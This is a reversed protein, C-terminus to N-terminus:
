GKYDFVQEPYADRPGLYEVLELHYSCKPCNIVPYEASRIGGIQSVKILSVKQMQSAFQVSFERRCGPNLCKFWARALKPDSKEALAKGFGGKGYFRGHMKAFLGYNSRVVAEVDKQIASSLSEENDFYGKRGGDFYFRPMDKQGARRGDPFIYVYPGHNELHFEFQYGFNNQWVKIAKIEEDTVGCGGQEAPLLLFKDNHIFYFRM